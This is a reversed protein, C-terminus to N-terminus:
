HTFVARTGSVQWVNGGQNLEGVVAASSSFGHCTDDLTASGIGGYTGATLWFCYRADGYFGMSGLLGGRDTGGDTKVTGEAYCYSIKGDTHGILGGVKSHGHVEGWAFSNQVNGTTYGVLGGVYNSNAAAVAGQASCHTITGESYGVLGGVYEAGKSEVQVATYCNIFSTNGSAIGVLGGTNSQAGSIRGVVADEGAGARIVQCNFITTNDAKDVLAGVAGANGSSVVPASITINQLTAGKTYGFLGGKNPAEGTGLDIINYIDGDFIGEFPNEESGLSVEGGITIDKILRVVMGKFTYGTNVALMLDRLENWNGINFVRNVDIPDPTKENWEEITAKFDVEEETLTITVLLHEGANLAIDELGDMKDPLPLRYVYKGATIELETDAAFPQPPVIGLELRATSIIGEPGYDLNEAETLKIVTSEERKAEIDISMVGTGIDLSHAKRFLGQRLVVRANDFNIDRNLTMDKLRFTLQSMSHSLTFDLQTGWGSTKGWLIDDSTGAAFETQETNTMYFVTQSPTAAPEVDDWHLVNGSITLQGQDDGTFKRIIRDTDNNFSGMPLFLFYDGAPAPGVAKTVPKSSEVSASVAVDRKGGPTDPGTNDKGCSGALFAIGLLYIIRKM